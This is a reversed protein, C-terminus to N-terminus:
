DDMKLNKERGSAGFVAVVLAVAVAAVVGSSVAGCQSHKCDRGCWSSGSRHRAVRMRATCPAAGLTHRCGGVFWSRRSALTCQFDVLVSDYARLACLWGAVEPSESVGHSCKSWPIAM